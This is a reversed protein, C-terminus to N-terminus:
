SAPARRCWRGAARWSTPANPSGSRRGGAYTINVRTLFAAQTMTPQVLQTVGSNLDFAEFAREVMSKHNHALFRGTVPIAASNVAWGPLHYTNAM